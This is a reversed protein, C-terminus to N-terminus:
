SSSELNSCARYVCDPRSINCRSVSKADALAEIRRAVTTQNVGLSRAAALTSGARAVAILYRADNWDFAVPTM